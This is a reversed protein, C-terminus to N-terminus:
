SATYLLEPVGQKRLKYMQVASLDSKFEAAGPKYHGSLLRASMLQCFEVHERNHGNLQVEGTYVSVGDSLSFLELAVALDCCPHDAIARPIEFGDDWNYSRVVSQLEIASGLAKVAKVSSVEVM